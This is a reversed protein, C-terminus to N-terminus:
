VVQVRNQPTSWHLVIPVGRRARRNSDLPHRDAAKVGPDSRTAPVGTASRVPRRAPAALASFWHCLRRPHALIDHATDTRPPQDHPLAMGPRVPM